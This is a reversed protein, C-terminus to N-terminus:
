TPALFGPKEYLFVERAAFLHKYVIVRRKHLML